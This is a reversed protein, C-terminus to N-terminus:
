SLSINRLYGRQKFSDPWLPLPCTYFCHCFLTFKCFKVKYVNLLYLPDKVLARGENLLRYLVGFPIWHFSLSHFCLPNQPTFSFIPESYSAHIQEFSLHSSTPHLIPELVNQAFHPIQWYKTIVRCPFYGKFNYLFKKFLLLDPAYVVWLWPFLMVPPRIYEWTIHNTKTEAQRVM